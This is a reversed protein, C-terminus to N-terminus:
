NAEGDGPKEHRLAEIARYVKMWASRGLEDNALQADACHAAVFGAEDGHQRILLTVTRWIDIEGMFAAGALNDARAPKIV